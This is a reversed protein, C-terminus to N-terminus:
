FGPPPISGARREAERERLRARYARARETRARATAADVEAAWREAMPGAKVDRPVAIARGQQRRSLAEVTQLGDLRVEPADVSARYTLPLANVIAMLVGGMTAVALLDRVLGGAYGWLLGTAVAAALSAGPGALAILAREWGVLGGADYVCMGGRDMLREAGVTFRGSRLEWHWRRAGILVFVPGNSRWLAAGAHGLEHVLALLPSMLVGYLLVLPVPPLGDMFDVIQQVVPQGDARQAARKIGPSAAHM